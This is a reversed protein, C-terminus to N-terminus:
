RSSDAVTKDEWGQFFIRSVERSLCFLVWTRWLRSRRTSCKMSSTQTASRMCSRLGLRATATSSSSLSRCSRAAKRSIRPSNGGEQRIQVLCLAAAHACPSLSPCVNFLEDWCREAEQPDRQQLHWDEHRGATEGEPGRGRHIAQVQVAPRRASPASAFLSASLDVFTVLLPDVKGNPKLTFGHPKGCVWGCDQVTSICEVRSSSKSFDCWITFWCDTQHYVLM